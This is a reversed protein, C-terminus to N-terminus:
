CESSTKDDPMWVRDACSALGVSISLTEHNPKGDLCFHEGADLSRNPFSVWTHGTHTM